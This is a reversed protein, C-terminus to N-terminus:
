PHHTISQIALNITEQTQPYQLANTLSPLAASAAPGLQALTLAACHRELSNTSHLYNTLAPVIIDAEFTFRSLAQILNCSSKGSKSGAALRSLILPLPAPANTGFNNLAALLVATSDPEFPSRRVDIDLDLAKMLAPVVVEPQHKLTGLASAAVLRISHNTERLCGLLIPVAAANGSAGLHNLITTRSLTKPDGALKLLTPFAEPGIACLARTAEDAVYYDTRNGAAKALWPLADRASPGLCKFAVLATKARNEADIGTAWYPICKQLLANKGRVKRVARQWEYADKSSWKILYPVADSGIAAIALKPDFDGPEVRRANARVWYSLPQGRYHPEGPQLNKWLIISLLFVLLLAAVVKHRKRVRDVKAWAFRAACPLRIENSLIGSGFTPQAISDDELSIGKRIPRDSLLSQKKSLAAAM